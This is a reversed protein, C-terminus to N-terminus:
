VDESLKLSMKRSILSNNSHVQPYFQDLAGCFDNYVFKSLELSM